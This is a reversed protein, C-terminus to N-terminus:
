YELPSQLKLISIYKDVKINKKLLAERVIDEFEKGAYANSITNARQFNSEM